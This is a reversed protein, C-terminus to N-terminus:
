GIAEGSQEDVEGRSAVPRPQPRRPERVGASGRGRHVWLTVVTGEPVVAGPDPYQGVVVGSDATFGSTEPGRSGLGCRALAGRADDFVLGVVDPVRVDGPAGGPNSGPRSPRLGTRPAGAHGVTSYSAWGRPMRRWSPRTLPVWVLQRDQVLTTVRTSVPNLM